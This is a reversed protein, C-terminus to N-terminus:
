MHEELVLLCNTPSVVSAPMGSRCQDAQLAAWKDVAHLGCLGRQGNLGHIGAAPCCWSGSSSQVQEQEVGHRVRQGVVVLLHQWFWDNCGLM